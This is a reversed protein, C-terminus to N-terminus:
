GGGPHDAHAVSVVAGGPLAVGLRTSEDPVVYTLWFDGGDNGRGLGFERPDELPTVIGNIGNGRLGMEGILRRSIADNDQQALFHVQIAHSDVSASPVPAEVHEVELVTVSGGPVQAPTGVPVLPVPPAPSAPGLARSALFAAVLFLVTMMGLTLIALTRPPVRGPAATSRSGSPTVEADLLRADRAGAAAGTAM